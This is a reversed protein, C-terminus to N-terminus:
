KQKGIQLLPLSSYTDPKEKSKQNIAREKMFLHVEEVEAESLRETYYYEFMKQAVACVEVLEILAKVDNHEVIEKAHEGVEEILIALWREPTLTKQREQNPWANNQRKRELQILECFIEPKTKNKLM